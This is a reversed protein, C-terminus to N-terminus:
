EHQSAEGRFRKALLKYARHASVKVASLSMGTRGAVEQATYGEVHMMEIVMRQKPPLLSLSKRLIDAHEHGHEPAVLTEKVAEFDAFEQERERYVTRFHDQLRYNAIAFMWPLFPRSAEYTHRAKHISLLIEQTVDELYTKDSLRNYLFARVIGTIERLLKAYAGKDGAQAKRMLVCLEPDRDHAKM